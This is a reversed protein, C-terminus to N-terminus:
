CRFLVVRTKGHGGKENNNVGCAGDSLVRLISQLLVPFLVICCLCEGPFCRRNNVSVRLVFAMM